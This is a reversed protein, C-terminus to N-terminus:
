RLHWETWANLWESATLIKIMRCRGLAAGRPTKGSQLSVKILRHKPKRLHPNGGSLRYADDESM